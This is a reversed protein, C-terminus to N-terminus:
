MKVPREGDSDIDIRSPTSGYGYLYRGRQSDLLPENDEQAWYDVVKMRQDAAKRHSNKLNLPTFKTVPQVSSLNQSMTTLGRLALNAVAPEETASLEPLPIVVDGDMVRAVQLMREKVFRSDKRSEEFLECVEGASRM